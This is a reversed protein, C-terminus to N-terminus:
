WLRSPLEMTCGITYGAASAAAEWLATQANEDAQTCISTGEVWGTNSNGTNGPNGVFTSPVYSLTRWYFENDQWVQYIGDNAVPVDYPKPYADSYSSGNWRQPAFINNGPEAYGSYYARNRKVNVYDGSANIEGGSPCRVVVNDEFDIYASRVAGSKEVQLPRGANYQYTEQPWIGDIYNHHVWIHNGTVGAAGYFSMIDSSISNGATNYIYNWGVESRSTGGTGAGAGGAQATCTNLQFFPQRNYNNWSSSEEWNDKSTLMGAWGAAGTGNSRSGTIDIARNYRVRVYDLTSQIINIGGVRISTCNEMILRTAQGRILRGMAEDFVVPDQCEFYCNYFEFGALGVGAAIRVIHSKSRFYCNYFRHIATGNGTVVVAASADGTATSHIQLDNYDHTGSTQTLTLPSDSWHFISAVPPTIIQRSSPRLLALPFSM